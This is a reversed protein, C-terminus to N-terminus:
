SQQHTEIFREILRAVLEPKEAHLWHGTDKVIKMDASPFRETVADKHSPLIYDSREGKLFLVPKEFSAQRNAAILQPYARKLGHLNLRWHFRDDTKLLNKLLFARVAPDSVYEQLVQDAQTRSQLSQPDIAQLGAFVDGHREAYAVPSADLVVLQSVRHPWLLALEMAVKGGLSHGVVNVTSLQQSDLWSAILEAYGPLDGDETHESRGHDPLDVSWVEFQNGLLRAISGMNELSGFLGHLLLIPQGRGTKRWYLM